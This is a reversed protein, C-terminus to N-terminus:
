PAVLDLKWSSTRTAPVVGAELWGAGRLPGGDGPRVVTGFLSCRLRTGTSIFSGTWEGRTRDLRFTLTPQVTAPFYNSARVMGTASMAITWVYTQGGEPDEATLYLPAPSAAVISSQVNFFAALDRGASGPWRCTSGGQFDLARVESWNFGSSGAKALDFLEPDFAHAGNTDRKVYCSQRELRDDGSSTLVSASWSTGGSAREFRLQGLLSSTSLPGASTTRGQYIQAFVAEQSTGSLTASGTGTSGSLRSGWVVKGTPLVQAFLTANNDAGPGSRWMLGFESGIAHRGALSSLDASGGGLLVGTLKTLGRVAGSGQSLSEGQSRASWTDRVLASLEVTKASFDLELELAQRNAQTGVGLRPACVLKSPDAESPVFVSSFSRAVAWYARESGTAGVLPAAENYLVRGSVAGTKTVSALIM